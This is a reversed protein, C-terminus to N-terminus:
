NIEERLLSDLSLLSWILLRRNSKGQFHAELLDNVSKYDVLEYIPSTKLLLRAKVFDISEGKFWSADPSSFGKKQANTISAPIYSAMVSRLINKGDNTKQFYRDSKNGADNENIKPVQGFNKIKLELPCSM